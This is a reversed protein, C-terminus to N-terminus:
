CICQQDDVVGIGGGGGLMTKLVCGVLVQLINTSAAPITEVLSRM